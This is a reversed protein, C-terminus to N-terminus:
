LKEQRDRLTRAIELWIKEMSIIRHLINELEDAPVHFLELAMRLLLMNTAKADVPRTFYFKAICSRMAGKILLIRIYLEEQSCSFDSGEFVKGAMDAMHEVMKEFIANSTYGEYYSERVLEDEEVCKLEVMFMAAMKFAPSEEKYQEDILEVCGRLLSLVLAQFIDAKNKYLYYISGTLVGSEEVIQRITTKKYGQRVFLKKAATLVKYIVRDAHNEERKGTM